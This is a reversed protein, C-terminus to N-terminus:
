KETYETALDVTLIGAESTNKLWEDAPLDGSVLRPLIDFANIEKNNVKLVIPLGPGTDFRWGKKHLALALASGIISYLLGMLEESSSVDPELEKLKEGYKGGDNESAIEPLSEATIGTLFEKYKSALNRWNELYVKSGANEWKISELEQSQDGFMTLFLNVELQELDNVLTIALSDNLKDGRPLDSVAAIRDGLSPHTNYSPHQAEELEQKVSNEIYEKIHPVELFMTFGKAIPPRYGSNLIPVVEERWYVDYAQSTGVIKRLSDAIADSGAITAALRDATYEQQRSISHTIGLFMNGYWIFPKQLLSSHEALGDLTRGIASRTKYIVPGLKTDGGYYHGFEHAIVAKLESVTLIQMLPMGVGMVRRGGIGLFGGRQSVWANVDFDLYVESPAEQKTAAAIENIVKFLEPHQEKTLQPGPPTFRDIRPFISWLIIGAGGICFLAIKPHVRNAYVWEAYPIYLLVLALGIALIYFGVLLLLALIARGTLSQPKTVM